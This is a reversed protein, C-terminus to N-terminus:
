QTAYFQGEEYKLLQLDESYEVPIGTLIEIKKLVGYVVEDELCSDDCWANTSTRERSIVADFTGDPLEDGVDKSRKYGLQTGVEILRKCEAETIFEDIIVVWPLPGFDGDTTNELSPESLVQVKRTSSEPGYAIRHFMNNLDGPKWIDVANPDMPCRSQIDLQDCTQCALACDLKMFSASTECEGLSAWFCCLKDKNICLPRIKDYKPKSVEEDLYRTM